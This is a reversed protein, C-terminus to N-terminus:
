FDYSISMGWTRPRSWNSQVSAVSKGEAVTGSVGPGFVVARNMVAEDEINLIYAEVKVNDGSDWILRLDSKTHAKQEAPAVNIDHAYYDSTYTGQLMPTLTGMDGLNIDYSVQFGATLEPALAPAYGKLSLSDLTGNGDLDVQRGGLSGLGALAAMDYTGFEADLFAVNATIYWKDSPAWQMEVELGTADVEGGNMTYESAGGNLVVFSQAHMDTYENMFIAANLTMRGDQLVTKIGAEYATVFEPNYLDADIGEAALTAVIAAGNAGGARFGTSVSGYVMTDESLDVEIAAKWLTDDWTNISGVRGKKDENSRIGAILRVSDTMSYTANGYIATSESEYMNHGWIYKVNTGNGDYDSGIWGWDSEQKFQYYGLTWQLAGDSNSTLQLESSSDEQSSNWGIFKGPQESVSGADSYDSDYFQVGEFDTQNVTLKATAFSLDYSLELTISEDDLVAASSENRSVNWPGADQTAGEFQYVHGDQYVGDVYGGVQQYGWIATSNTDKSSESYRLTAQFEDTPQWAATMRIYTTDQNDLDDDTGAAFSNTIYGDHEDTMGVLRMAFTDSLPLNLVGQMKRRNKGGFLTMVSGSTADFDPAKSIVNIAGGFTNRGYLTGQPGRLVEIRELDVYSGLAQTSTAVYVGDQFIGVTQEGETGVNNSRTGRIAIRAENGSMGMRMGHVIHELRTVDDIGARAMMEPSLATISASVDQVSESRKEATVLVEEMLSSTGEAFASSGAFTAMAVALALVERQTTKIM